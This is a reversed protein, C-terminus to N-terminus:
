IFFSRMGEIVFTKEDGNMNTYKVEHRLKPLTEFFKSVQKISNGDLSNMFDDIEENSYDAFNHVEDESALKDLCSTMIFYNMLPDKADLSLVYEFQAITPHKLFLTYEENIKVKNDHEEDEILKVDKFDIELNVKEDTDPDTISFTAINDVSRTRLNLFVYELDVMSMEDVTSDVLCNNIVQKVSLLENVADGSEAAVLLIKEEKVTFPRLKVKKGTSPIVLEELPLDIKPLAM